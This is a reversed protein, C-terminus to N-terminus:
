NNTETADKLEDSGLNDEESALSDIQEPNIKNDQITNEPEINEEQTNEGTELSEKPIEEHSSVEDKPPNVSQEKTSEPAAMEPSAIALINDIRIGFIFFDQGINEVEYPEVEEFRSDSTLLVGLVSVPIQLFLNAFLFAIAALLLGLLHWRGSLPTAIAALPALTYIQWIAWIMFIAVAIAAIRTKVTKFLRLIQRQELTLRDPRVALVLLSFIDFPRQWQMWAIPLIGAIALFAIELSYPLVPDGAALGLWVALLSLPVVALGALHIWLFPESRFSNM